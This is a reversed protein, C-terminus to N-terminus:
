SDPRELTFYVYLWDVQEMAWNVRTSMRIRTAWVISIKLVRSAHARFALLSKSKKETDVMSRSKHLGFGGKLGQLHLIVPVLQGELKM